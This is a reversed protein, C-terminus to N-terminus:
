HVRQAFTQVRWTSRTIAIIMLIIMMIMIMIM